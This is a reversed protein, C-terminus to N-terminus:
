GSIFDKLYYPEFYAVDEFDGKKMKAEALSVMQAASPLKDEIFQANSHFCIERFKSVGSGIFTVNGQELYERYSNEDLIVAETKRVQEKNSDFVAAYVEMRRADLMPVIFGDEEVQHALATLTPISILPIDLAFCLGKAASVGIRLGTYSGPGKSVAIAQLEKQDLGKDKLIQQIFIHLREAHSYDASYDEKLSLLQGDKGIAVSCNTSATEICLLLSM